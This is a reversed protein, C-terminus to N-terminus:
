CLLTPGAFTAGHNFASASRASSGPEIGMVWMFSWNHPSQCGRRAEVAVAHVYHVHMCALLVNVCM